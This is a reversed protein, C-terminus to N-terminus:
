SILPKVLNRVENSQLALDSNLTAALAQDRKSGRGSKVRLWAMMKPWGFLHFMYVEIQSPAKNLYTRYANYALRCTDTFRSISVLVDTATGLVNQPMQVLKRHFELARKRNAKTYYASIGDPFVTWSVTCVDRWSKNRSKANAELLSDVGIQLIGAFAGNSLNTPFGGARQFAGVEKRVAYMVLTELDKNTFPMVVGSNVAVNYVLSSLTRIESESVENKLRISNASLLAASDKM